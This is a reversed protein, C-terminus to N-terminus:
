LVKPILYVVAGFASMGLTPIIYWKPKGYYYGIGCVSLWFPLLMPRLRPQIVGNLAFGMFTILVIFTVPFRLWLKRNSRYVDFIAAILFPFSFVVLLATIKQFLSRVEHSGFNSAIILDDFVKVIHLNWIPMPGIMMFFGKVPAVLPMLYIPLSETIVNWSGSTPYDVNLRMRSNPNLLFSLKESWNLDYSGTAKLIYETVVQGVILMGCGLVIIAIKERRGPYNYLWILAAAVILVATAARIILGIVLVPILFLMLRFLIKKQGMERAIVWIGLAVIFACLPEKAVNAFPVIFDPLLMGFRLWQWRLVNGEIRKMISVFLIWTVFSLAGNFLTVYFKSVGFIWYLFGAYWITGTYNQNTVADPIMGADALLVAYADFRVPDFEPAVTRSMYGQLWIFDCALLLLLSQVFYVRVWKTPDIVTHSKIGEILAFAVIGYASWAALLTNLKAPEENTWIIAIFTSYFFGEIFWPKCFITCINTDTLHLENFGNQYNKTKTMKLKGTLRQLSVSDM